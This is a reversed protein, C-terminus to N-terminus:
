SSDGGVLGPPAHVSVKRCLNSLSPSSPHLGLPRKIKSLAPSRKPPVKLPPPPKVLRKQLFPQPVVYLSCRAFPTHVSFTRWRKVPAPVSPWLGEPPSANSLALLRQPAVANPPAPLEDFQPSGFPPTPNHPVTNSSVGLALPVQVSLVNYLKTSALVPQFGKEPTMRSLAPSKTPVVSFPPLARSPVTNLIVGLPLPFTSSLRM